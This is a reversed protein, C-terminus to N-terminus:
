LRCLTSTSSTPLSICQGRRLHNSRQASSKPHSIWLMLSAGTARKGPGFREALRAALESADRRALNWYQLRIVYPLLCDTPDVKKLLVPIIPKRFYHAIAVEKCVYDSSNSEPSLLLVFADCQRIARTIEEAFDDGPQLWKEDRWCGLGIAEIANHIKRATPLDHHSYSIFVRTM